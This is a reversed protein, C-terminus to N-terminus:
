EDESIDSRLGRDAIIMDLSYFPVVRSVARGGESQVQAIKACTASEELEGSKYINRIHRNVVTRDVGFLDGMRSQNLWVTENELRVELRMTEDPQYVVIENAVDKLPRSETKKQNGMDVIRKMNMAM